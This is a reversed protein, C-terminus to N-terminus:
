LFEFRSPPTHKTNHFALPNTRFVRQDSLTGTIGDADRRHSRIAWVAPVCLLFFFPFSVFTCPETNLSPHQFQPWQWTLKEKSLLFCMLVYIFIYFFFHLAYIYLFLICTCNNKRELASYKCPKNVLQCFRKYTLKRYRFLICIVNYEFSTKLRSLLHM